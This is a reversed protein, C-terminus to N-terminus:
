SEDPKASLLIQSHLDKMEKILNEMQRIIQRVNEVKEIFKEMDM